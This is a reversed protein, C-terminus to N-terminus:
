VWGLSWTEEANHQKGDGIACVLAMATIPGIGSIQQLRKADTNSSALTNINKDLDDVRGNLM